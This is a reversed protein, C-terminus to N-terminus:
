PTEGLHKLVYRRVVDMVYDCNAGTARLTISTSGLCAIDVTLVSDKTAEVFNYNKAMPSVGIVDRISLLTCSWNPSPIPLDLYRGKWFCGLNTFQKVGEDTVSDEIVVEEIAGGMLGQALKLLEQSRERTAEPADIKACYESFKEVTPM